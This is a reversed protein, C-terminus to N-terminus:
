RAVEEGRLAAEVAESRAYSAADRGEADPQAANAGQQVLLSVMVADDAVVACHLPTAGDEDPANVKAGRELLFTAARRSKNMAAVHLLTMGEVRVDPSLGEDFLLRLSDARNREAARMAAAAYQAAHETLAADDERLLRRLVGEDGLGAALLLLSDGNDDLEYPNGGERWAKVRERLEQREQASVSDDEDSPALSWAVSGFVIFVVAWGVSLMAPRRSFSRSLALVANVCFATACLGLVWPLYDWMREPEEGVSGFALLVICLLLLLPNVLAKM